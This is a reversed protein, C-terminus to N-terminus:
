SARVLAADMGGLRFAADRTAPDRIALLAFWMQSLEQYYVWLGRAYHGNYEIRQRQQDLTCGAYHIRGRGHALMAHLVTLRQKLSALDSQASPSGGPQRMLVKDQRAKDNLEAIKARIEARANPYTWAGGALPKM